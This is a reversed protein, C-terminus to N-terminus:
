RQIAQLYAVLRDVREIAGQHAVQDAAAHGFFEESWIPMHRISTPSITARGNIVGVIDDAPFIGGHREAIRTLDPVPLKLYAAIPGRGDAAAGHCAACNASYIQAGLRIQREPDRNTMCGVGITSLLACVTLM